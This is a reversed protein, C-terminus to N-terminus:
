DSNSSCGAQVKLILSTSDSQFWRQGGGRASPHDTSSNTKKKEQEVEESSGDNPHVDLDRDRDMDVDKNIVFM